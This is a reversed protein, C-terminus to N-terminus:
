SSEVAEVCTLTQAVGNVVDCAPHLVLTEEPVSERGAFSGCSGNNAGDGDWACGVFVWQGGRDYWLGGHTERGGSSSLPPWSWSSGPRDRRVFRM